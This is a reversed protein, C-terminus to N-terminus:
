RPPRSWDRSMRPAPSPEAAEALRLGAAAAWIPASVRWDSLYASTKRGHRREPSTLHFGRDPGAALAVRRRGSRVPAQQRVEDGCPRFSRGFTTPWHSPPSKSGRYGCEAALAFAKDFPWDGFTENCIALPLAATQYGHGGRKGPWRLFGVAASQRGGARGDGVVSFRAANDGGDIVIGTGGAMTRRGPRWAAPAPRPSPRGITTTPSTGRPLCAKWAPSTRFPKTWRIYGKDNM